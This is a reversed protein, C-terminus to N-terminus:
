QTVRVRFFQGYVVFDTVFANGERDILINSPKIDRHVISQRHAYDLASCIQRMLLAIEGLPLLGQAMIEKLTGGSLYRMVIYPPEHSADFDYVPLIHPHELRAILKAERQFRQIGSPDNAIGKLIVKIAVDREMSAQEAHYVAAMGGKGIEEILEYSGFKQGLM